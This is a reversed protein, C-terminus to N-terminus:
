PNPATGGTGNTGNKRARAQELKGKATEATTRRKALEAQLEAAKKEEGALQADFDAKRKLEAPGIVGSQKQLEDLKVVEYKARQVMIEQRKAALAANAEALEAAEAATQLTAIEQATKADVLKARNADQQQGFRGRIEKANEEFKSRAAAIQEDRRAQAQRLETTMKDNTAEITDGVAEVADAASDNTADAADVDHEQTKVDAARQQLEDQLKTVEARAADVHLAAEGTLDKVQKDPITFALSGASSGCAGQSLGLALVTAGALFSPFRLM